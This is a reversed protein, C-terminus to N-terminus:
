GRTHQHPLECDLTQCLDNALVSELGEVKLEHKESQIKRARLHQFFLKAIAEALKPCYVASPRTYSGQIPIHAHDRSCKSALPRLDMNAGILGFEKQHPSGYSCSALTVETAGLEVLRRWERLWRMKSRRPQEGMGFVGLRLAVYLLALAVFALCNGLHVKPHHPDFGRPLAYSRLPPHCAASFSTCPPAVLYAELRGDEMMFIIWGVVRDNQLNYQQSMSLDLVPGCVVGLKVLEKTVVGSGGCVEIFEFRLGIPREAEFDAQRGDFSYGSRSPLTEYM